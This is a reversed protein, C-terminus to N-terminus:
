IYIKYMLSHIKDSEEQAKESVDKREDSPRGAAARGRIRGTM